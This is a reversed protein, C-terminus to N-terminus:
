VVWVRSGVVGPSACGNGSPSIIVDSKGGTLMVAFRADVNVFVLAHGFIVAIIRANVRAAAPVRQRSSTRLISAQLPWGGSCTLGVRLGIALLVSGGGATLVCTLMAVALGVGSGVGM